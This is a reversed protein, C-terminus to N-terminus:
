NFFPQSLDSLLVTTPQIVGENQLKSFFNSRCHKKIFLNKGVIARGNYGSFASHTTSM